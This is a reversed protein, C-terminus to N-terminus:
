LMLRTYLDLHCRLYKKESFESKAFKKAEAGISNILNSDRSLIDIKSSIRTVDEDILFGTKDNIIFESVGGVNTSITPIGNLAGEIIVVPMGENRSTLLLLDASSVALTIDELWGTFTVPLNNENTFTQCVSRLEGDGAMLLHIRSRAELPLSAISTLALMPNKIATFRGLWLIILKDKPIGLHNKAQTKDVYNRSTVGPRIVDWKRISGVGRDALDDKVQSTVAILSDSITALFKELVVVLFTKWKPFYGYLLHGHFTHVLRVRPNSIKAGIRGLVGAKSTHTHVIDPKLKKLIRIIELLTKFDDWIFISRKFKSLKVVPSHFPHLHLYDVENDECEGAILTHEIQVKPLGEVLEALLTAPGGVNM